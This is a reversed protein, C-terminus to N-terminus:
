RCNGANACNYCLKCHYFKDVSFHNYRRHIRIDRLLFELRLCFRRKGKCLLNIHHIDHFLFIALSYLLIIYSASTSKACRSKLKFFGAIFFLCCQKNKSFNITLYNKACSICILCTPYIPCTLFILIKYFIHQIVVINTNFHHWYLVICKICIKWTSEGLCIHMITSIHITRYTIAM